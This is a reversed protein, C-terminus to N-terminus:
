PEKPSSGKVARQAKTAVSTSGSKAWSSPKNQLPRLECYYHYSTSGTPRTDEFLRSRSVTLSFDSRSCHLQKLTVSIDLKSAITPRLDDSRVSPDPRVGGGVQSHSLISNFVMWNRGQTGGVFSDTSQYILINFLCISLHQMPRAQLGAMYPPENTRGLWTRVGGQRKAKM